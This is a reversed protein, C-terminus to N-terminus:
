PATLGGNGVNTCTPSFTLSTNCRSLSLLIFDSYKSWVHYTKQPQTPAHANSYARLLKRRRLLEGALFSHAFGAWAKFQSLPSCGHHTVLRFFSICSRTFFGRHMNSFPQVVTWTFSVLYHSMLRFSSAECQCWHPTGVDSKHSLPVRLLLPIAPKAGENTVTPATRGVEASPV